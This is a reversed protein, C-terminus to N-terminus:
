SGCKPLGALELLDDRDQNDLWILFGRDVISMKRTTADYDLVIPKVNKAVQLSAASQLTQTINGPNLNQGEPHASQLSRRIDAYLFGRELDAIPATLIPWLLWKPMELRTDQFGEAFNMIFANYRGGQEDVVEKILVRVDGDFEIETLQEQTQFVGASRIARRCCEQIISVSDFSNDLLKDKFGEPLAIRLLEEGAEIVARLEERAWHDADIPIVRGTLDGNYVILRNEELWVGVIVMCLDSNEHFAKLEIAFDRQTEPSLYHFDELVIFKQFAIGRLAEIIDNVDEPDLELPTKTASNSNESESEGGAEASAGFIGATFKALLKQRGTATIQTSQTIEYGARKLINANIDAASWRNSCQVVIYDDDQLCHKRLCTKGQKSGGYVVIHNTRSLAEVFAQDVKERPVYNLPVERVVGFVDDVNYTENAM